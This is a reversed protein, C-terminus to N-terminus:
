RPPRGNTVTLKKQDIWHSHPFSPRDRDMEKLFERRMSKWLGFIQSRIRKATEEDYANEYGLETVLTYIEKFPEFPYYGSDEGRDNINKYVGRIEDIVVSLKFLTSSYLKQDRDIEHTYQAASQVADVAKSWLTRLHQLFSSRRQICYSLWAAVIALLLPVADKFATYYIRPPNSDSVALLFGAVITGILLFIVGLINLLFARKTM